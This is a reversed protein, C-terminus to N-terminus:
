AIELVRLGENGRPDLVKVAMRWKENKNLREPCQKQARYHPSTTLEYARRREESMSRVPRLGCREKEKSLHLPQGRGLSAHFGHHTECEIPRSPRIRAIREERAPWTRLEPNFQM